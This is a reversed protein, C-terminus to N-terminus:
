YSPQAQQAANVFLNELQTETSPLDLAHAASYQPNHTAVALANQMFSAQPPMINEQPITATVPPNNYIQSQAPMANQQPPQNPSFQQQAPQQAHQSNNVGLLRETYELAQTLPVGQDILSRAQTFFQQGQQSLQQQGTPSQAYLWGANDQEYQDVQQQVQYREIGEEVRRDVEGALDQRVVPAIKDYITQIPNGRFLKQVEQQQAATAQNLRGIVPYAMAEMGAVPEWLGNEGKQVAGGNIAADFMPDWEPVNWSERFHKDLDLSSTDGGDPSPAAPTSPTEGQSPSWDQM